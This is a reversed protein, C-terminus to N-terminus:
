HQNSTSRSVLSHNSTDCASLKKYWVCSRAAQRGFSSCALKVHNPSKPTTSKASTVVRAPITHIIIDDALMAVYTHSLHFHHSYRVNHMWFLPMHPPRVSHTHTQSLTFNNPKATCAKALLNMHPAFDNEAAVECLHSSGKVHPNTSRKPQVYWLATLATVLLCIRPIIEM